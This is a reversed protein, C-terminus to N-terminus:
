QSQHLLTRAAQMVVGLLSHVEMLRLLQEETAELNQLKASLDVYEETLDKSSTDEHTVEVAMARLAAMAGSFDDAPVRM